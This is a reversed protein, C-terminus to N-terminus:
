SLGTDGPTRAVVGSGAPPVARRRRSRRYRAAFFAAIAVVAVAVILYTAVDFGGIVSRWEGGLEYGLLALAATWPLCGALTYAGFRLPAMEAVGAPLSIFTRVVPVLRGVFVAAEGHRGFWAQARDLDERRILLLGGFRGLFARGGSRGVAWAVYSGVLNGLTGLVVVQGLGLTGKAALYGAFIMTVESPIPICASEAVMLVFVALYGSSAVFSQV